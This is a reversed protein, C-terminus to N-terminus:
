LRDKDERNIKLYYGCSPQQKFENGHCVSMRKGKKKNQATLRCKQEHKLERKVHLRM